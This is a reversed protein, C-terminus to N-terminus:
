RIALRLLAYVGVGASLGAMLRWRATRGTQAAAWSAVGFILALGLLPLSVLREARDPNVLGSDLNLYLLGAVVIGILAPVFLNLM